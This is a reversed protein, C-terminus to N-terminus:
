SDIECSDRDQYCMTLNTYYIDFDTERKCLMNIRLARALEKLAAGPWM